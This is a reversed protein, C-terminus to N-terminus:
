YLSFRVRWVLPPVLIPIVHVKVKVNVPLGYIFAVHFASPLYLGRRKACFFIRLSAGLQNGSNLNLHLATRAGPIFVRRTKSFLTRCQSFHKSDHRMTAKAAADYLATSLDIMCLYLMKKQYLKRLYMTNVQYRSVKREFFGPFTTTPFSLCSVACAVEAKGTASPSKQLRRLLSVYLVM